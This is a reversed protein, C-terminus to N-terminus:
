SEMYRSEFDFRSGPLFVFRVTYMGKRIEFSFRQTSMEATGAFELVFRKEEKGDDFILHITNCDHESKGCIVITDCGKDGFDMERYELTVNNGIGHVAKKCIEYNDGYIGDNEAANLKEYAKQKRAFSFGKLHIKQHLVFSIQTVGTVRRCLAYTEEQYVNWISPKHYCVTALLGSGAAGPIGEWIEIPCEAGGLEFVSLTICDSGFNGFDVREYGIVTRGERATSVGHENGNGVDGEVYTYLGGSIFGYPDLRSEGLGEARFDLQSIVKVKDTHNKTMCKLHFEGDSYAMVEAYFKGMKQGTRGSVARVKAIPSEIGADNVVRWIIEDEQVNAAAEEPLISAEVFVTQKEESLLMGGECTLEIKRVWCELDRVKENWQEPLLSIGRIKKGEAVPIQMWAGTLGQSSVSVRLNGANEGIAALILLKGSFLRRSSGKYEDMDTSDGNDLGTLWGAGEVSVEIRNNANEVPHDAEDVAVVTFFAMDGTGAFLTREPEYQTLILRVPEGFSSRTERAIEKLNEDYAVATIEGKEYAIRYDGTLKSEGTHNIRQRGKSVGNVLLEVVDANSAIRVDILQGPNFDWYPYVHIMPDKKGDTWESRFVYYSDKPFGATDMQGFYSNKTQYPTPEGIYDIATWIFQGCSYPTDRDMTICYETNKAAWSTTSNGLASCQEDAEILNARELPFHYVGRSQVVSSTESGYIIWDPHKEHHEAYYKEAYNYGAVKVIDACKQANEWPMYNSGITVPAVKRYDWKRVVALLSRTIEQGHADAHTDPIENGISWMIVSPHNRDRRIWSRVDKEMWEKFFRAYDYPNKAMEWMDFAESVILFGMEDALEMLEVAPMNHSTRVANVGMSRMLEFKRRMAEKHFAAGLAGLDHHDCAGNLRVKRGNLLFGRAPDFQMTRFGIRLHEEQCLERSNTEQERWLCVQLDYLYPDTIDWKRPNDVPITISIKNQGCTLPQKVRFLEQNETEIPSKSNDADRLCYELEYNGSDTGWELETDITLDYGNKTEVSSTYIGDLPIHTKPLRIMWVNRYIGAGSYWRSNPAQFVVRLVIENDGKHLADTIDWDFTSYGYKWDGLHEGNVYISSDMYGGEFRLIVRDDNGTKDPAYAFNKRYWGISDEYLNKTDYILWDHPLDVPQMKAEWIQRDEWKVGLETKAFYWNDNWLTRSNM